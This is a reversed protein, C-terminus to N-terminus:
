FTTKTDRRKVKRVNEEVNMRVEKLYLLHFHM